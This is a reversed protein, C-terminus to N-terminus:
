FHLTQISISTEFLKSSNVEILGNIFEGHEGEDWPMDKAHIGGCVCM